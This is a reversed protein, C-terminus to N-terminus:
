NALPLTCEFISKGNEHRYTLDGDMLRALQRSLTLGLGLPATLGPTDHGRQYPDFIRERDEPPIGPGNDSVQVRCTTRGTSVSTRVRDGGYRLANSILNRLIQRVRAPDGIARVSPGTIEIHDVAGRRWTELVQATQARLDVPVHVFVLTGSEAKAAVLLDEVINTLEIAEDAISRIMEAREAASSGSAEDQLIQAFGLVVTLPTRLEHSISAILQEKSRVLEEVTERASERETIDRVVVTAELSGDVPRKSINAEFPFEEGNKPLGGL